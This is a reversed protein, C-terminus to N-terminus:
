LAELSHLRWNTTFMWADAGVQGLPAYSLYEGAARLTGLTLTRGDILASLSDFFEVGALPHGVLRYKIQVSSGTLRQGATPTLRTYEPLYLTASVVEAPTEPMVGTVIGREAAAYVGSERYVGFDNAALWGMLGTILASHHSM